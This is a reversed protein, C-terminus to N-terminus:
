EALGVVKKMKSQGDEADVEMLARVNRPKIPNPGPKLTDADIGVIGLVEPWIRVGHKSFAPGKLKYTPQGKDDYSMVLSDAIFDKFSDAAPQAAQAPMSELLVHIARLEELINGLLVTTLNPRDPIQAPKVPVPPAVPAPAPAWDPKDSHTRFFTAASEKQAPTLVTKSNIGDRQNLWALRMDAMAEIAKLVGAANQFKKRALKVESADILAPRVMNAATLDKVRMALEQEDLEAQSAQASAVTAAPKPAQPSLKRRNQWALDTATQPQSKSFM